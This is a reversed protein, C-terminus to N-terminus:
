SHSSHWQNVLLLKPATAPTSASKPLHSPLLYLQHPVERAQAHQRCYALALDCLFLLPM